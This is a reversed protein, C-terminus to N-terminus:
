NLVPSGITSWTNFLMMGQLKLMNSVQSKVFLARPSSPPATPTLMLYNTVM